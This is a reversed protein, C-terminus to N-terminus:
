RLTVIVRGPDIAHTPTDYGSTRAVVLDSVGNGDLDGGALVPGIPWGASAYSDEAVSAAPQEGTLPCYLVDTWGVGDDAAGGFVLDRLGDGDLDGAISMGWYPGWAGPEEIALGTIAFARDDLHLTTGSPFFDCGGLFLSLERPARVAAGSAVLLDLDGDGNWDAIGEVSTELGAYWGPYSGTDDFDVAIAVDPTALDVGAAGFGPHGYWVQLQAKEPEPWPYSTWAIDDVGDHHYTRIGPPWSCTTTAM